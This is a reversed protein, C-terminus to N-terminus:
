CGPASPGAITVDSSTSAGTSVVTVDIKSMSDCLDGEMGAGGKLAGVSVKPSSLLLCLLILCGRGYELQIKLCTLM